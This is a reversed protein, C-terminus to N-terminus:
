PEVPVSISADDDALTVLSRPSRFTVLFGSSGGLDRILTAPATGEHLEWFFRIGLNNDLAIVLKQRVEEKQESPWENIHKLELYSLANIGQQPSLLDSVWVPLQQSFINPTRLDQVQQTNLNLQGPTAFLEDLRRTTRTQGTKLANIFTRISSTPPM